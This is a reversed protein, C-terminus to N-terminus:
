LTAVSFFQWQISFDSAQISFREMQITGYFIGTDMLALIFDNAEVKFFRWHSNAKLNFLLCSIQM